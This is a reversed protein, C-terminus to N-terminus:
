NIALGRLVTMFDQVREDLGHARQRFKRRQSIANYTEAYRLELTALTAKFKELTTNGSGPLTRYIRRGEAGLDHLLIGKKRATAFYAGGIVFFSM